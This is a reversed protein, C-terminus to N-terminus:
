QQGKRKKTKRRRYALANARELVTGVGQTVVHSGAGEYVDKVELGAAEMRAHAELVPIGLIAAAEEATKVETGVYTHKPIELEEAAVAAQVLQALLLKLPETGM